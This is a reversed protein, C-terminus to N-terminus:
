AYVATITIDAADTGASTVHATLYHIPRQQLVLNAIPTYSENSGAPVTVTAVNTGNRRLVVTVDGSSSATKLEVRLESVRVARAFGKRSGDLVVVTGPYSWDLEKPEPPQVPRPQIPVTATSSRGGITGSALRRLTVETRKARQVLVSDLTVDFLPRGAASRSTRVEMVRQGETPGDETPTPLYDGPAFGKYPEEARHAANYGVKTQTTNAAMRALVAAAQDDVAASSRVAGLALFGGREGYTAVLGADVVERYGREWRVLLKAAEVDVDDFELMTLNVGEVLEVDSLSGASDANYLNLEYAGPTM